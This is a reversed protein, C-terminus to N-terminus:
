RAKLEQAFKVLDGKGKANRIYQELEDRGEKGGTVELKM